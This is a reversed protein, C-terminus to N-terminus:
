LDYKPAKKADDNGREVVSRQREDEWLNVGQEHTIQGRDIMICLGERLGALKIIIPDNPYESVMERWEQNKQMDHCYNPAAGDEAHAFTKILLGIAVYVIFGLMLGLIIRGAWSKQPPTNGLRVREPGRSTLPASYSLGTGPLGVTGRAGKKGVNITAGNGGLSLSAGKKGINIRVGKAIKISNRFRLGM